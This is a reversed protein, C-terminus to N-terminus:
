RPISASRRSRGSTDGRSLLRFVAKSDEPNSAPLLAFPGQTTRDSHASVTAGQVDNVWFFVAALWKTQSQECLAEPNTCLDVSALEPIQSIVDRQLLGYNNPGTTQIAGRGWWCCGETITGPECMLPADAYSTVYTM